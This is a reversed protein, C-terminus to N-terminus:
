FSPRGRRVLQRLNLFVGQEIRAFPVDKDAGGHAQWLGAGAAAAAPRHIELLAEFKLNAIRLLSMVFLDGALDLDIGLEACCRRLTRRLARRVPNDGWYVELFSDYHSSEGRWGRFPYRLAAFFHFLDFLPLRPELPFEWDFVAAAGDRLIINAPCFDGHEVTLPLERGRLAARRLWAALFAREQPDLAFRQQLLEIPRAVEREFLEGELRIRQPPFCRQFGLWWDFVADVTADLRRTGFPQGGPLNKLLPGPLASQLTILLGDQDWLGLAAPTTRRERNLGRAELAELNEYEIQYLPRGGRRRATELPAAKAIWAPRSSGPEFLLILSGEVQGQSDDLCLVNRAGFEVQGRASRLRNVRRLVTELM